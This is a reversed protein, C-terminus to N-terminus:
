VAGDVLNTLSDVTLDEPALSVVANYFDTVSQPADEKGADSCLQNYSDTNLMYAGCLSLLESLQMKSSIQAILGQIFEAYNARPVIGNSMTGGYFYFSDNHLMGLTLAREDGRFKMPVPPFCVKNPDFTYRKDQRDYDWRPSTKDPREETMFFKFETNSPGAYLNASVIYAEEEEPDFWYAEAAGQPPPANTQDGTYLIESGSRYGANWGFHKTASNLHLDIDVRDSETDWFPDGRGDGKQNFWHVGTTFAGEPVGQIRSGWPIMGAFQKETTPVAYSIHTPIHFFKGQLVPTLRTRLTEWLLTYLANYEEGRTNRDNAKVFTRGNRISYVSPTAPDNMMRTRLSNIVKIIDRNSAKEVIRRQTNV